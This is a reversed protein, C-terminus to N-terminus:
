TCYVYSVGSFLPTKKIQVPKHGNQTRNVNELKPIIPQNRIESNFYLIESQNQYALKKIKVFSFCLCM